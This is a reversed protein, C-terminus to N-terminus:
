PRRDGIQNVREFIKGQVMEMRDLRQSIDKAMQEQTAMREPLKQEQISQIERTNAATTNEFTVIFATAGILWVGIHFAWAWDRWFKIIRPM